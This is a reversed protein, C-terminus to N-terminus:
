SSGARRRKFFQHLLFLGIACPTVAVAGVPTEAPSAEGRLSGNVSVTKDKRTIVIRFPVPDGAPLTIPASYLLKNAGAGLVLASRVSGELFVSADLEPALTSEDQLLVSLDGPGTFVTVLFPSAAQRLQVAGGDAWALSAMWVLSLFRMM